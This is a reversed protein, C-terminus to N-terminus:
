RAMAIPAVSEATEIIDLDDRFLEVANVVDRFRAVEREDGDAIEFDDVLARLSLVEDPGLALRRAIGVERSIVFYLIEIRRRPDMKPGARLAEIGASHAVYARVRRRLADVIGSNLMKERMAYYDHAGPEGHAEAIMTVHDVHGRAAVNRFNGAMSLRDVARMRCNNRVVQFRVAAREDRNVLLREFREFDYFGRFNRQDCRAYLNQLHRCLDATLGGIEVSGAPSSLASDLRAAADATLGVVEEMSDQYEPKVSTTVGEAHEQIGSFRAAMSSLFWLSNSRM